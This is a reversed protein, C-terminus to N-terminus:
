CTPATTMEFLVQSPSSWGHRKRVRANIRAAIWDLMAQTTKRLSMGKPLYQRILKNVNEVQGKQYPKGADCVYLRGPLLAPLKGFEYGQDTTVSLMPIGSQDNQWGVFLNAVEEATGHRALGLRVFRTARDILVIVKDPEKAKGVISDSEQHGITDRTLIDQPRDHISQAEEVWYMRKGRGNCRQGVKYHRLHKLLSKQGTRKLYRYVTSTHASLALGRVIQEPSDQRTLGHNVLVWVAPNVTPHNAASNQICQQRHQEAADAQYTRRGGCRSIEREITRTSYGLALAIKANSLGQRIDHQVQYRALYTLPPM